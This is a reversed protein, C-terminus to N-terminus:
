QLFVRECLTRRPNVADTAASRKTPKVLSVNRVCLHSMTLAVLVTLSPFFHINYYYEM